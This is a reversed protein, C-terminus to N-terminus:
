SLNVKKIRGDLKYGLFLEAVKLFRDNLDTVFYQHIGNKKNTNQLNNELLYKKLDRAVEIGPNILVMSNKTVKKIVSEIIPYHTCGMILTDPKKTIIEKLYKKSIEEILGGKIEGEEVFPVFLPCPKSFIKVSANESYIKKDYANSGITARTGIVGIKQNKTVKLAKKVAPTIVEFIPLKIKTKLFKYSMASATNCAIVLCKVDQKLLFNADEFSFNNIVEKSRTGYPVRATDGLYIINENPLLKVIEKLVTLGGLGSDFVGIPLSNM